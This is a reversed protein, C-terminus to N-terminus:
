RRTPEVLALRAEHDALKAIIAGLTAHIDTSQVPMPVPNPPAPAPQPKDAM